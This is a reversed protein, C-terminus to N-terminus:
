LTEKFLFFVASLPVGFLFAVASIRSFEFNLRRKYGGMLLCLWLTTKCGLWHIMMMVNFAWVSVYKASTVFICPRGSGLGIVGVELVHVRVRVCVRVYCWVICLVLTWVKESPTNCM